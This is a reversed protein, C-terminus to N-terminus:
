CNTSRGKVVVAAWSRWAAAGGEAVSDTTERVQWPYPFKRLLCTETLEQAAGVDKSGFRAPSAWEDLRSPLPVSPEERSTKIKRMELHFAETFVSMELPLPTFRHNLIIVPRKGAVKILKRVALVEAPSNGPAVVLYMRDNDLDLESLVAAIAQEGSVVAKEEFPGLLSGWQVNLALRAKEKARQELERAITAPVEPIVAGPYKAQVQRRVAAVM